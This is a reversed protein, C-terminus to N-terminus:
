SIERDPEGPLRRFRDRQGNGAQAAKAIRGDQQQELVIALLGLQLALDGLRGLHLHHPLEGPTHSVVEVVDEGRDNAM